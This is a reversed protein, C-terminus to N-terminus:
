NSEPTQTEIKEAKAKKAEIAKEAEAKKRATREAVLMIARQKEQSDRERMTKGFQRAFFGLTVVCIIVILLMMATVFYLEAWASNSM